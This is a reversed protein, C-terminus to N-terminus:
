AADFEGARAGEIFAVWEERTFHNVPSDPINSNRVDVSGDAHFRTEVCSPENASFSSKYWDKVIKM